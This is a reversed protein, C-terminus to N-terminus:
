DWGVEARFGEGWKAKSIIIWTGIPSPTSPKGGSCKYIKILENNEFLFLKSDEVDVLIKYTSSNNNSTQISEYNAKNKSILIFGAILAIVLLVIVITKLKYVKIM